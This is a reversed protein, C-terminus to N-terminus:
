SQTQTRKKEDHLEQKLDRYTQLVPLVSADGAPGHEVILRVAREIARLIKRYEPGILPDDRRARLESLAAEVALQRKDEWRWRSLPGIVKWIAEEFVDGLEAEGRSRAFMMLQALSLGSPERTTEWRCVTVVTVDMATALQQQTLHLRERLALVAEQLPTRKKRSM